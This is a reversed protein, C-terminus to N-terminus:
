YLFMHHISCYGLLARESVRGEIHFQKEFPRVDGDLGLIFVLVVLFPQKRLCLSIKGDKFLLSSVMSNMLKPLVDLINDVFRDKGADRSMKSACGDQTGEALIGISRRLLRMM